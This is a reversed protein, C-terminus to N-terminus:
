RKRPSMLCTLCRYPPRQGRAVKMSTQCYTCQVVKLIPPRAVAPATGAADACALSCYATLAAPLTAYPARCRECHRLVYGPPLPPPHDTM